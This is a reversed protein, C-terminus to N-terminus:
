AHAVEVVSYQGKQRDPLEGQRKSRNWNQIKSFYGVVRTIHEVSESGCQPCQKKLGRAQQGCAICHTMEPSITVQATQTKFFVNRLLSALAGPDPQEEGVFIHTIAGSEIMPHFMAQKRIREVLPVPADPTLHISNTYYAADEAQGRVYKAAEPFLELDTKALRRTASEAPSEELSFKLGHKMSLEQTYLFMHAVTLLGFHYAEESEHLDQKCLVKIAENLSLLGIIYTAGALSVYPLGHASPKGIQYLPAGAHSMLKEIRAKKDLHAQVVLDMTERIGKLFEPVPAETRAAKYALQPLNITVNQFGCFSLTELHHLAYTDTVSTRLRCCAALTVADRDFVFYPSGNESAVQCAKLYVEFQLPDSFTEENVHFDCKPFAFVTGNKDGQRWIELMAVAMKRAEEAYDGYTVVRWGAAEAAKQVDQNYHFGRTSSYEEKLLLLNQTPLKAWLEILPFGSPTKRDQQRETLPYLGGQAPAKGYYHGGPGVIPVHKLYSPVGSHINFDLFLTQGGRSFANQSGNFILEQAVQLYQKDTAGRMYPAYLINIYAIGLAGAYNAQMSALFTNLHGTLVSATKAPASESGLNSLGKLGYKKIYELSHSSCYVRHPYGLDHLHIAGEHHARAVQPSFVKELAWERLIKEAISQSVAEPNNQMINANENIKTGMLGEVFEETVSFREHSQLRKPYKIKALVANTLERVLDTHVVDLNALVIQNEVQKAVMTARDAAMGIQTRLSAILRKRDWARSVADGNRVLLMSQDTLDISPVGKGSVRIRQRALDRLEKYQRYALALDTNGSAQLTEIVVRQVDELGAIVKGDAGPKLGTELKKVAEATLTDALADDASRRVERIVSDLAKRIKTSRFPVQHGDRKMFAQIVVSM